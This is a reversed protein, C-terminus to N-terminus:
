KRHFGREIDKITLRLIIPRGHPCTAPSETRLLNDILWQMKETTLKTNVKIAAKCALHAAIESTLNERFKKSAKSSEGESSIASLLELFMSRVESPPVDAPVAKIVVTRGSLKMVRFGCKELEEEILNFIEMEAPSLDITESILLNQIEIKTGRARFKEFLIREHAVHQDILLLGQDDVAVIYSERIQGLPIIRNAELSKPEKLKSAISPLPISPTEISEVFNENASKSFDKLAKDSVASKANAVRESELIGETKKPTESIKQETIDELVSINAGQTTESGESSSESIAKQKLESSFIPLEPMKEATGETKPAYLTDLLSLTEKSPVQSSSIQSTKFDRGPPIESEISKAKSEIPNKFLSLSQRITQIVTEKVADARRFRVEIKAPHVNVDVEECPVQLFVFAVPYAGQPLVHRYAEAIASQIIRDKVFRRNVFSLQRDRSSRREHPASVFGSIKALFENGGEIPLLNEVLGAGFIQFIREKLSKAPALNLVERGQNVLVFSVEPYALAYQEVVATIYHNETPEARMFKRRAPTNFFLDKVTVTTGVPRAAQHVDILRGGEISVKTAATDEETKTVLEVRAVSAISALAEGRFGLTQIRSLDELTSIKSTAHREFCNIADDRSMGCGDDSVRMLRRGGAEIEVRIRKAGADLSNEILEKIVSAPREVVEGAAIQSALIEPLIKIKNM